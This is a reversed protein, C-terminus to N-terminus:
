LEYDPYNLKLVRRTSEALDQLGLIDYSTIMIDLAKPTAPTQPFHEVVYKARRLAAHYADRTMYYQAVYLEYTALRNRLFIMRKQADHVYESEPFRKILEAFDEFAQRATSSDREAVEASFLSTFATNEETYNVLGKMYYAYDVRAHQPNQRIFRDATSLASAPDGSKYYAYILNLQASQTYEGFPFRNDLAELKQVATRYNGSNIASTADEFLEKASAIRQQQRDKKGNSACGSIIMVSTIIFIVLLHKLKNM